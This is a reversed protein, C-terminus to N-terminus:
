DLEALALRDVTGGHQPCARKFDAPHINVLSNPTPPYLPPVDQNTYINLVCKTWASVWERAEHISAERWEGVKGKNIIRFRRVPMRAGDSEIIIVAQKGSNVTFRKFLEIQADNVKRNISVWELLLIHGRVEVLGDGDGIRIKRGTAAFCVDFAKLRSRSLMNYCHEAKDCEWDLPSREQGNETM